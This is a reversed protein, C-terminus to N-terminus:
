IKRGSIQVDTGGGGRSGCVFENTLLIFVVAIFYYASFM